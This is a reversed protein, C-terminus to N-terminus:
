VNAPPLISATLGACSAPLVGVAWPGPRECRTVPGCQSIRVAGALPYPRPDNVWTSASAWLIKISRRFRFGMIDDYACTPPHAHGGCHSPPVADTPWSAPRCVSNSAPFRGSLGCRVAFENASFWLPDFGAGTSLPASHLAPYLQLCRRGSAARRPVARTM